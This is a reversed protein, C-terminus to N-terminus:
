HFYAIASRLDDKIIEWSRKFFLGIYVDPDPAKESAIEQIVENVEKEM